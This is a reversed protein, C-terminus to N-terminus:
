VQVDFRKRTSVKEAEAMPPECAKNLMPQVLQGEAGRLCGDRAISGPVSLGALKVLTCFRNCDPTSACCRGVSVGTSQLLNCSLLLPAAYVSLCISVVFVLIKLNIEVLAVILGCKQAVCGV